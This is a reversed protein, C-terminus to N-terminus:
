GLKHAREVLHACRDIFHKARGTTNDKGHDDSTLMVSEVGVARMEALFREPVDGNVPAVIPYLTISGPDRGAEEAMRRLDTVSEAFAATDSVMPFWGDCYKVVLPLARKPQHVGLLVKPGGKQLPKPECRVLPFKVTTGQYSAERDTWLRKMAEISETLKLWRSEFPVGMAETEERLWGAGFAFITRGGSYFDLTAITKALAVPEHEPLLSIGTGLQVRTTVASAIALAIYPDVWRNYHEPLKGDNGWRYFTDYHVPVAVHEPFFLADFHAAEVYRALDAVHGSDATTELDVGIKM